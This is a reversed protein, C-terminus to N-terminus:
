SRHHRKRQLPRPSPNRRRQSQDAGRLERKKRKAARALSKRVINGGACTSIPITLTM